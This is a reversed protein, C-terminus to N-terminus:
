CHMERGRDPTRATHHHGAGQCSLARARRQALIAKGIGRDVPRVQARRVRAWAARSMSRGGGRGANCDNCATVLNCPRNDSPDGIHDLTLGYGLPDVPFVQRCWVCDFHDRAYIALRLDLRIWNMGRGRNDPM